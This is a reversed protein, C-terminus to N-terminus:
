SGCDQLCQIVGGMKAMKGIVTPFQSLLFNFINVIKDVHMSVIFLIYFSVLGLFSRIM